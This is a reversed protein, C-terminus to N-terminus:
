RARRDGGARAGSEHGYSYGYGYASGAKPPVMNLVAGLTQGGARDVTAAAQRLQDKRTRGYRASLLVGDVHPALGSADAVPLLPPADVLVVDFRGRLKELLARMHSSALLEGPNPATPGAPLVTLGGHGYRQIVEDLDATGTLVNTLGVGGVMGLYCTVKPRRLDAEVVVVQQGADSLALALNVVLTTKGEAPVASSVMIVRPPEDVRLFRLNNRLQRYDEAARGAPEHDTTHRKGLAQDRVITGIVPAGVLGSAEDADKVSRDLRARALAAGAGALLGGALGLAINLPIQPESPTTPLKATDVVLVTVPSTGGGSPKELARVLRIFEASTGEAIDRAREPSPDTVTVDLLVTEPVASATVEAAFEEPTMDLDLNAIVRIALDEGTLLRVYSAVRQQSFQSGTLIDSTSTSGTTSVFLQTHATYQPTLLLSIATGATGGLLLGIVLMWWSARLASLVERIDM